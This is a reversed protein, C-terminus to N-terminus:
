RKREKKQQKGWSYVVVLELGGKLDREVWRRKRTRRSAPLLLFRILAIGKWEEDNRHSSVFGIQHFGLSL